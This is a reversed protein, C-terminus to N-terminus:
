DKRDAANSKALAQAKAILGEARSRLSATEKPTARQVMASVLKGCSERINEIQGAEAGRLRLLAELWRKGYSAHITEDAWDFDMDHQSAADGLQQFAVIREPKRGINRTEFFFLMGLRYLPDQGSASEYIYTGLPIEEPQFGWAALREIGMRCHRAEDYTWRAAERIWQWPLESAFRELIIGGNEIAWVENLHSVASRLQLRIGDGYPFTPDVTDPWYFRCRWYSPDRAPTAPIDLPRSGPLPELNVGAAAQDTGVGGLGAFRHGLEAHWSQAEARQAPGRALEQEAWYSVMQTQREKEALALRLFRHTPADALRDSDRLYWRYADRLAPLFTGGLALLFASASPASRLQDFLGVLHADAGEADMLRSPYRLEFVRERLAQATEANQWTFLPLGTKIELPALHPLWASAGLVLSRECFHFRKLIQATGLRMWRARPQKGPLSPTSM